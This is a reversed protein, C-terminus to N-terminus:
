QTSRKGGSLQIIFRVLTADLLLVRFPYRLDTGVACELFSISILGPSLRLPVIDLSLGWEPLFPIMYEPGNRHFPIFGGSCSLQVGIAPRWINETSFLRRGSLSGTFDYGFLSGFRFKAEIEWILSPSAILFFGPGPSLQFSSASNHYRMGVGPGASWSEILHGAMVDSSVLAIIAAIIIAHLKM